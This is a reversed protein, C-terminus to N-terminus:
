IGNFFGPQNNKQFHFPGSLDRYYRDPEFYIVFGAARKFYYALQEYKKERIAFSSDYFYRPYAQLLSDLSKEREAYQQGVRAIATSLSTGPKNRPICFAALSILAVFFGAKKM